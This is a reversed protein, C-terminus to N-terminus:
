LFKFLFLTSNRCRKYYRYGGTGIGDLVIIGCQCWWFIAGIDSGRLWNPALNM